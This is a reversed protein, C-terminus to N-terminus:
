CSWVRCRSWVPEVEERALWSWRQVSEPGGPHGNHHGLGKELMIFGSVPEVAVLCLGGEPFTEDECVTVKKPAM